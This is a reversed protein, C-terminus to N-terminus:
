ENLIKFGSRIYYEYDSQMKLVNAPNMSIAASDQGISWGTEPLSGWLQQKSPPHPPVYCNLGRHKQLMYAFHFDDGTIQSEVRPLERWFTSLWERQFLWSHGVIDSRETKANPNAWGVRSNPQYNNTDKFIVGLSGLLGEQVQMTDYCNQFWQNGPITDDDTM